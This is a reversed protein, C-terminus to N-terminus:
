SAPLTFIKGFSRAKYNATGKFRTLVKYSGRAKPRTFTATYSGDTKGDGDRDKLYRVAVTKAAVKVFRGGQKRFLTVTVREGSTAPELLGKAVVSHPKRAVRLTLSTPAKDDNTITGQAAGDGITAGTPNTLTLSLTENPEYAVDGNVVVNVTGTTSGAPITLTGSGAM